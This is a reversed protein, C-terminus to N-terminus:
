KPPESNLEGAPLFLAGSQVLPGLIHGGDNIGTPIIGHVMLTGVAFMVVRVSRVLFTQSYWLNSFFEKM